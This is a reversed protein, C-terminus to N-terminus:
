EDTLSKIIKKALRENIERHRPLPETNGNHPSHYIDHNAGHRMMTCGSKELLSILDRRNM